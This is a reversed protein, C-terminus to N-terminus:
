QATFLILSVVLLVNQDSLNTLWWIGWLALVKWKLFYNQVEGLSQNPSYFNHNSTLSRLWELWWPAKLIIYNSHVYGLLIWMMMVVYGLLLHWLCCDKFKCLFYMINAKKILVLYSSYWINGHRIKELVFCISSVMKERLKIQKNNHLIM